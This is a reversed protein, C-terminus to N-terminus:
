DDEEAYKVIKFDNVIWNWGYRKEGEDNEWVNQQVRGDIVKITDGPVLNAAQNIVTLNDDPDGIDSENGFISLHYWSTGADEWEYKKEKKNYVRKSHNEAVAFKVLAREEDISVVEPETGINCRKISFQAM